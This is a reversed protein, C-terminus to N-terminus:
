PAQFIKGPNLLGEPDFLAKLQRQLQLVEPPQELPLLDRKAWGVGHEGTITGGVSLALEAMRRLALEVKPRQDPSDYLINAHLNGDGAHGYTAVTLGLEQGM